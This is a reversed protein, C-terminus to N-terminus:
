RRRSRKPCSNKTGQSSIRLLSCEEEQNLATAIAPARSPNVSSVVSMFIRGSTADTAYQQVGLCELFYNATVRALKDGVIVESSERSDPYVAGKQLEGPIDLLDQVAELTLQGEATRRAAAAIEDHVDLKLVASQMQGGSLERRLAVLFGRKSRRDMEDQLQEAITQATELFSEQSGARLTEFRARYSIDTFVASPASGKAARELLNSIHAKLYKDVESSTSHLSCQPQAGNPEVYAYAVLRIPM